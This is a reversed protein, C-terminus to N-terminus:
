QCGFPCSLYIKYIWKMFVDSIDLEHKWVGSVWITKDRYVTKLIVATNRLGLAFDAEWFLDWYHGTPNLHGKPFVSSPIIALNESKLHSLRCDYM